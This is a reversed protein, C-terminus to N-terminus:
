AELTPAHAISVFHNDQRLGVAAILRCRSPLDFSYFGEHTAPRENIKRQVEDNDETLVITRLVLKAKDGCLRTAREIASEEVHWAVIAQNEDASIAVCENPDDNRSIARKGNKDRVAQAEACLSSDSPNDKLLKQYIALARRCHGQDALIRAMTRTAIPEGEMAVNSKKEPATSAIPTKIIAPQKEQEASSASINEVKQPRSPSPQSPFTAGLRLRPTGASFERALRVIKRFARGARRLPRRHHDSICRILMPRTMREPAWTGIRRAEKELEEKSWYELQNIDM